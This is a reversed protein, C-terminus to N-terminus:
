LDFQHKFISSLGIWYRDYDVLVNDIYSSLRAFGYLIEHSWLCHFINHVVEVPFSNFLCMSM